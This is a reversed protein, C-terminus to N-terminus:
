LAEHRAVLEQVSEEFAERQLPFSLRIASFLNYAASHPELQDLFWLGEQAFSAPFIYVEKDAMLHLDSITQASKEEETPTQENVTLHTTNQMLHKGREHNTQM